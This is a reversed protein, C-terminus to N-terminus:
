HRATLEQLANASDDWAWETLRRQLVRGRSRAAMVKSQQRARARRKSSWDSASGKMETSQDAISLRRARGGTASSRHSKSSWDAASGKVETSPDAISLQRSGRSGPASSRRSRSPAAIHPEAAHEEDGLVTQRAISVSARKGGMSQRGAGLAGLRESALVESLQRQQRMGLSLSGVGETAIVSREPAERVYRSDDWFGADGEGWVRGVVPVDSGEQEDGPEAQTSTDEPTNTHAQALTRALNTRKLHVRARILSMVEDASLVSSPAQGDPVDWQREVEAGTTARPGTKHETRHAPRPQNSPLMMYPDEGPASATPMCVHVVSKPGRQAHDPKQVSWGEFRAGQALEGLVDHSGFPNQAAHLLTSLQFSSHQLVHSGSTINSLYQNREKQAREWQAVSMKENAQATIASPRSLHEVIENAENAHEVVVPGVEKAAAVLQDDEEVGEQGGEKKPGKIQQGPSSSSTHKGLQKTAAQNGKAIAEMAELASGQVGRAGIPGLMLVQKLLTKMTPTFMDLMIKGQQILLAQTHIATAYLRLDKEAVRHLMKDLVRPPMHQTTFDRLAQLDIAAVRASPSAVVLSYWLPRSAILSLEGVTEGAKAKLLDMSIVGNATADPSLGMYSSRLVCCGSVIVYVCASAEGRRLLELGQLNNM